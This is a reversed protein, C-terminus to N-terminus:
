KVLVGDGVVIYEVDEPIYIPEYEVEDNIFMTIQRKKKYGKNNKAISCHSKLTKQKETKLIKM